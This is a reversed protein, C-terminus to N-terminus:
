ANAGPQDKEDELKQQFDGNTTTAAEDFVWLPRQPRNLVVGAANPSGQRRAQAAGEAAVTHDAKVLAHNDGCCHLWGGQQQKAKIREPVM